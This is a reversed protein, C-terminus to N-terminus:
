LVLFFSNLIQISVCFIGKVWLFRSFSSPPWLGFVTFGSTTASVQPQSGLRASRPVLAVAVMEAEAPGFPSGQGRSTTQSSASALLPCGWAALGLLAGDPAPQCPRIPSPSLLCTSTAPPAGHPCPPQEPGTTRWRPLLAGVKLDGRAPGTGVPTVGRMGLLPFPCPRPRDGVDERGTGSRDARRWSGDGSPDCQTQTCVGWRPGGSGCRCSDRAWM